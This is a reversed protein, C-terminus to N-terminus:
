GFSKLTPKLFVALILKVLEVLIEDTGPVKKSELSEIMSNVEDLTIQDSPFFM